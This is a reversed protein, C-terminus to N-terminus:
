PQEGVSAPEVQVDRWMAVIERLQELLQPIRPGPITVHSGVLCFVMGDRVAPVSTLRRWDAVISATDLGQMSAVADIVIDPALRMIGEASLMPYQRASDRIANRAGAARILEHYFTPPGAVFAQSVSGGGMDQRGVCFLVSPHPQVDPASDLAARFARVLSDARDPAGCRAGVLRFSRLISGIDHNDVKAYPIGSRDLFDMVPTHERMLLVLDPELSLIQEYNPDVYGGVRPKASAQEPYTCFDTVGVVKDGCGLAFLTETISPALSIIRTAVHADDAKRQDRACGLVLVLITAATVAGPSALRMEATRQICRAHATGGCRWPGAAPGANASLPPHRRRFAHGRDNTYVCNTNVGGVARDEFVMRYPYM